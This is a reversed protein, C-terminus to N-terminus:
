ITDIFTVTLLSISIDFMKEGNEAYDLSLRYIILGTTKVGGM